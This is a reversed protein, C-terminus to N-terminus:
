ARPLAPEPFTETLPVIFLEIHLSLYSPRQRLRNLGLCIQQFLCLFLLLLVKVNYTNGPM